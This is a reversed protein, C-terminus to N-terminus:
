GPIGASVTGWFMGGHKTTTEPCSIGM